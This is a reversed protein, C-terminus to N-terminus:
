TTNNNVITNNIVTNNVINTTEPVEFEPANRVRRGEEKNGAEIRSTVNQRVEESVAAQANVDSEPLAEEEQARLEERQKRRQERSTQGGANDADKDSDLVAAGNEVPLVVTDDTQAPDKAIEQKEENTMTDVVEPVPEAAPTEG